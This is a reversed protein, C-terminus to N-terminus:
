CSALLQNRCLEKKRNELAPGFLFVTCTQKFIYAIFKSKNKMTKNLQDIELAYIHVLTINKINNDKLWEFTDSYSSSNLYKFRNLRHNACQHITPEHVAV